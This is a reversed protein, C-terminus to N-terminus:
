QAPVVLDFEVRRNRSRGQATKNSAVPKNAGFGASQLRESAVGKGILYDLCSKARKESLVQNKAAVGRNDTYGSIKLHYVPYDNLLAAIENLINASQPKLTASATEFEIGWRAAVLIKKHEESMEPCGLLEKPGAAEPCRDNKDAVGDADTDPCGGLEKPGAADPCEDFDDFIGDSDTDRYPCGQKEPVGAEEPCDDKNDPFGDGDTDPCGKYDAIGAV